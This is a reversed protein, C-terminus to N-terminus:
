GVQDTQGPSQQSAEELKQRKRELYREKASQVDESTNRKAVNRAVREREREEREKQTRESEQALQAQIERRRRENIERQTAASGVARHAVVPEDGNATTRKTSLGLKRTNPASLNLGASLLERSDVIQGDDNVEVEKGEARAVKIKEADKQSSPPADDPKTITLNEPGLPGRRKSGSPEPTQTAAVTANHEAESQELLQRYFHTMGTSQKRKAKEM